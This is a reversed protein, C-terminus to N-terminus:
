SAKNLHEVKGKILSYIHALCCIRSAEIFGNGVLKSFVKM